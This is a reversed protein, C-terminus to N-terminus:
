RQGGPGRYSRCLYLFFKRVVRENRVILLPDLEECREFYSLARPAAQSPGLTFDSPASDVFLADRGVLKTLDDELYDFQLGRQGIVNPGYVKSGTYFLLEATTKYGDASFVFASPHRTRLDNVRSALEKWGLWTDDSQIRVPYLLLQIAALLHVAGAFILNWRTWGSSFVLPVLLLASLYCPMLWNPKVLAFWSLASFLWAGPLFFSLLFLSLDPAPHQLKRWVSRPSLALRIVAILLPPMLLVSQTALLGVFHRPHPSSIASARESTQFLFSAFGHQANWLYVPAMLLQAIGLSLYPWPTRLLRRHNRSIALFTLLGIQLFVGTYKSDFALGMWLGSLLFASRRGLFVARYLQHLALTWFLLLPVDPTAILCVVTVMGTTAFLLAARSWLRAPLIEAAMRLWSAQMLASLTFAALRVALERHGFLATFIRLVVAIAPPHDFYSLSLNQSYFFYYAEQPTLEFTFSLGLRVLNVLL